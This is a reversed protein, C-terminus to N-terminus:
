CRAEAAMVEFDDYVRSGVLQKADQPRMPFLQDFDFNGVKYGSQLGVFSSFSM